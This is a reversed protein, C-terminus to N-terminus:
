RIAGEARAYWWWYSSKTGRHRRAISFLTMRPCVMVGKEKVQLRNTRIVSLLTEAEGQLSMFNGTVAARIPKSAVARSAVVGVNASDGMVVAKRASDGIAVAKIGM